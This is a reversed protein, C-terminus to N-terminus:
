AKGTGAGAKAFEVLRAKENKYKKPELPASLKVTGIKSADVNLALCMANIWGETHEVTGLAWITRRQRLAELSPRPLALLQKLVDEPRVVTQTKLGPDVDDMILIDSHRWPWLERGKQTYPEDPENVADALQLFEFYAMYRATGLQFSYETGIGVILSTKGSHLPGIVLLHQWQSEMKVFRIIEDRVKREFQPPYDALRYTFPLGAQQFCKKRSLWYHAPGLSILGCLLIALLPLYYGVTPGFQASYAVGVGLTVFLVATGADKLLDGRDFPFFDKADKESTWVDVAEKRIFWLIVVAPILIGWWNLPDIKGTCTLLVWYLLNTPVFGLTFHGLQNAMWVYTTTYGSQVEKAWLDAIAQKLLQKATFSVRNKLLLHM